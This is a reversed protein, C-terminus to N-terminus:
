TAGGIRELFAAARSDTAAHERAWEAYDEDTVGEWPNGAWKWVDNLLDDCPLCSVWEYLGDDGLYAARRYREGRDISAFCTRCKHAKRAVPTSDRLLTPM